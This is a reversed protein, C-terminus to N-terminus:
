KQLKTVVKGNKNIFVNRNFNTVAKAYKGKFTSISKFIEGTKNIYGEFYGGGWSWHTKDIEYNKQGGLTFQAIGNEFPTVFDYMAPIIKIGKSNAFGMKGHEQFRFLGESIYDPGSDYIFPSLITSDKANIARWGFGDTLSIVMAFNYLTDRDIIHYKAPITTQGKLNKYGYLQSGSSSDSFAILYSDHKQGVTFLSM